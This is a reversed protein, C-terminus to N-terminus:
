YKLWVCAVSMRRYMCSADVVDGVAILAGALTDPLASLAFPILLHSQKAPSFPPPKVLSIIEPQVLHPPLVPSHQVLELLPQTALALLGPSRHVHSYAVRCSRHKNKWKLQFMPGLLM